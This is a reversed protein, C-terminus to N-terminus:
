NMSVLGAPSFLFEDSAGDVNIRLMTEDLFLKGKMDSFIRCGTQNRDPVLLTAFAVSKGIQRYEVVENPALKEEGLCIWGQPPDAMGRHLIIEINEQELPLLSLVAGGQAHTTSVNIGDTKARLDPALHFLQSYYHSEAGELRDLLLFYRSRVFIIIRRHLIGPYATHQADFLEYNDSTHWCLVQTPGVNQDRYDVTVTNHAPTALFYGKRMPHSYSFPGGSDVILDNGYAYLEFSFLDRHTHTTQFNATRLALFIEDMFAQREGWGSRFFM